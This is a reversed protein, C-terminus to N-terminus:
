FPLTGEDMEEFGSSDPDAQTTERRESATSLFEVEDAIVEFATRKNGQKDEYRRTQLAGIVAVKRGRDLYKGCTEALGRWAVVDIYDTEREGERGSFRRNVALSFTCVPVGSQTQRMEPAKTLNGTLIIKNM